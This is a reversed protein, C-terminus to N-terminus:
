WFDVADPLARFQVSRVLGSLLRPRFIELILLVHAAMSSLRFSCLQRAIVTLFPLPMYTFMEEVQIMDPNQVDILLQDPAHHTSFSEYRSLIRQYGQHQWDRITWAQGPEHTEEDPNTVRKWERTADDADMDFPFIPRVVPELRVFLCDGHVVMCLWCAGMFAVSRSLVM